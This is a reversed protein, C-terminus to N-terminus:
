ETKLDMEDDYDIDLEKNLEDSVSEEDVECLALLGLSAPVHCWAALM